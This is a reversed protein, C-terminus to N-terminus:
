NDETEVSLAQLRFAYGAENTILVIIARCTNGRETWFEADNIVGSVLSRHRDNAIPHPDLFLIGSSISLKIQPLPPNSIGPARLASVPRVLRLLSGNLPRDSM